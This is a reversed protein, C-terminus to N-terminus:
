FSCTRQIISVNEGPNDLCDIESGLVPYGQHITGKPKVDDIYGIMKFNMYDVSDLVSKAYGGAGIIVLNKM